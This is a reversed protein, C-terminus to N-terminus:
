MELVCIYSYFVSDLEGFLFERDCVIEEVDEFVDDDVDELFFEFIICSGCLNDNVMLLLFNEVCNIRFDGMVVNNDFSLRIVKFYSLLFDERM